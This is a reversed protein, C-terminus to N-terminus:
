YDSSVKYDESMWLPKLFKSSWKKFFIQKFYPYHPKSNQDFKGNRNRYKFKSEKFNPMKGVETRCKSLKDQVYTM